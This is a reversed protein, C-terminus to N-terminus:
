EGGQHRMRLLEVIAGTGRELVGMRVNRQPNGNLSLSQFCFRTSGLFACVHTISNNDLVLTHLTPAARELAAIDTIRNNSLNLCELTGLRSFDINEIYAIRNMSLQLERLEALGQISTPIADLSNSSAKLVRLRGTGSIILELQETRLSNSAVDLVVLSAPLSFTQSSSSTVGTGLKNNGLNLARLTRMEMLEMGPVCQLQNGSLNLELLAIATQSADLVHPSAFLKDMLASERLSALDMNSLDLCMQHTERLRYNMASSASCITDGPIKAAHGVVVDEGSFPNPGRTRLFEKLRETSQATQSSILSQRISRIKNGAANIRHLAQMYGLSFPLDELSNNSVDLVKLSALRFINFDLREVQNGPLHLESLGLQDLLNTLDLASTLCNAGLNCFVLSGSRPLTPISTLKNELADLRKLKGMQSLSPLDRIRNAGCELVELLVSSTLSMPLATLRNKCVNLTTLSPLVVSPFVEIRNNSVDLVVLQSLASLTEPLALLGNEFILLERLQCLNDIQPSLLAFRNQSLDLHKLLTCGSYFSLPMEVLSNNRIKLSILDSLVGFESPLHKLENFSLDLKQTPVCEWFKEGSSLELDFVEAPVADLGRSSLNLMGDSHSRRVQQSLVEQPKKKAFFAPNVRGKM